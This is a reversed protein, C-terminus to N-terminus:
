LVSSGLIAGSPNERGTRLLVGIALSRIAPGDALQGAVSFKATARNGFVLEGIPLRNLARLTKIKSMGM